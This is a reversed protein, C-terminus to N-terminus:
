KVIIVRKVEKKQGSQWVVLYTGSRLHSLDANVERTNRLEEEPATWIIRGTLDVVEVGGNDGVQRNLKIKFRGSSPNPWIVMGKKDNDSMEAKNVNEM